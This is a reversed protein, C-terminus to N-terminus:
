LPDALQVSLELKFKSEFDPSFFSIIKAVSLHSPSFSFKRSINKKVKVLSNGQSSINGLNDSVSLFVSFSLQYSFSTASPQKGGAEDKEVNDVPSEKSVM